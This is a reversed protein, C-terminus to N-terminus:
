LASRLTDQLAERSTYRPKWDLERKAKSADMIAPHSIAEIWETAPPAFPPTPIAAVARAAARVPAGPFPVPALGLERAVDSGTLVGDGTINYAGPPGAAVVCLLIAQGVDEEHIFQVAVNPALTPLPVPLRTAAGLLGRGIAEL